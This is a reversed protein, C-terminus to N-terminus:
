TDMVRDAARNPYQERYIAFLVVKSDYRVIQDSSNQVAKQCVRIAKIQNM